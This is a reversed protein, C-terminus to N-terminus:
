NKEFKQIFEFAARYETFYYMNTNGVHLDYVIIYGVSNEFVCMHILYGEAFTKDYIQM